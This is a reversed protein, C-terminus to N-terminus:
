LFAYYNRSGLHLWNSRLNYQQEISVIRDRL